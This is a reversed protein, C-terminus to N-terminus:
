SKTQRGHKFPCFGKQSKLHKKKKTIVVSCISKSQGDSLEINDDKNNYLRDNFTTYNKM